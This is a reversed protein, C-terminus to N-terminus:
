KASFDPLPEIDFREVLTHLAPAPELAAPATRRLPLLSLRQSASFTCPSLRPSRLEPPRRLRSSSSSQWCPRPAQPEALSSSFQHRSSPRSSTRTCSTGPARLGLELRAAPTRLAERRSGMGRENKKLISTFMQSITTSIPVFKFKGCYGGFFHALIM